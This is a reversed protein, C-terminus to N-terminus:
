ILDESVTPVEGVMIVESPPDCKNLCGNACRIAGYWSAPVEVKNHCVLCEYIM